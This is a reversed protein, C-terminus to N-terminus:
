CEIENAKTANLKIDSNNRQGPISKMDKHDEQKM